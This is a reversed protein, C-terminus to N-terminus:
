FDYQFYELANHQKAKKKFDVFEGNQKIKKNYRGIFACVKSTNRYMSLDLFFDHMEKEKLYNIIQIKKSKLNKRFLIIERM